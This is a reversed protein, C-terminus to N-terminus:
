KSGLSNLQTKLQNLKETETDMQTKAASTQGQQKTMEGEYGSQKGQLSKIDDNLSAYDKTVKKLTKENEDGATASVKNLSNLKDLAAAAQTKKSEIEGKTKDINKQIKKEDDLSKNWTKTAKELVKEQTKIDANTQFIDADKKFAQLWTGCRQILEADASNTLYNNYGRSAVFTISSQKDDGQTQFYYDMQKPSIDPIVLGSCNVGSKNSSVKGSKYTELKKSLAEKLNQVPMTYQVNLGSVNEGNINISTEQPTQAQLSFSAFLTAVSVMAAKTIM